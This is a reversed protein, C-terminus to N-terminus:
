KTLYGSKQDVGVHRLQRPLLYNSFAKRCRHARPLQQGPYVRTLSQLRCRLATIRYKLSSCNGTQGLFTAIAVGKASIEDRSTDIENVEPCGKSLM